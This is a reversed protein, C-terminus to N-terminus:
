NLKVRVERLGDLRRRLRGLEPASPSREAYAAIDAAALLPEGMALRLLGRDRLEEPMDPRLAVLREVIELALASEGRHLYVAKLNVLLRTLIARTSLPATWRPDFRVPEDGSSLLRLVFRRAMTEDLLRGGSFADIYIDGGEDEDLPWKAMFHAPLGVGALPVGLRRAVEIYVISLTIPLGTRTELVVNLYSNEPEYYDQQNGHFGERGALVDRMANLVREATSREALSRPHLPAHGSYGLESRVEIALGDLMRQYRRHDLAPQTIDGILLASEALPIADDPRSALELFRLYSGFPLDSM